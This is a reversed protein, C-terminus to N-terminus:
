KVNLKKMKILNFNNEGFQNIKKQSFHLILEDISDDINFKPKVGTKILRSSDQRYSRIDVKKKVILKAGTKKQIRKAVQMISLNEFGMNYINNKFKKKAFLLQDVVRIIDKLNVTPRIQAGGDVFIKKKYYADFTLKNVTLDLRLRESFGSVTAPRLCKIEIQNKHNILYWILMGIIITASGLYALITKQFLNIKQLISVFILGAITSCYTAILIPLFVDAPNGVINNEAMATARLAIISTPILTLGSTNLVLFLIQADSAKNKEPNELQLEKMAKLGLPTAANDLGLMNASINMIIAGHAKSNKPIEPFLKELLPAFLRSLINIAGGKEGIRMIGLWLAMIGTLGLSLKFGLEAREFISNVILSFIEPNGSLTKFIAVIFAVIFFGVWIYNLTM